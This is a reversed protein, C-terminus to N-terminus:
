CPNLNCYDIVTSCIPDTFGRPCWCKYSASNLSLCEGGNLCLNKLCISNLGPRQSSVVSGKFYTKIILTSTNLISTLLSVFLAFTLFVGINM